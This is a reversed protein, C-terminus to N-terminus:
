GRAVALIEPRLAISIEHVAQRKGADWAPTLWPQAPMHVSGTEQINLWFAKKQAGVNATARGPREEVEVDIFEAGHFGRTGMGPARPAIAEAIDRVVEGGKMVADSLIRGQTQRAMRGLKRELEKLGVVEVARAM